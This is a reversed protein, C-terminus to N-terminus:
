KRLGELMIQCFHMNDELLIFFILSIFRFTLGAIPGFTDMALVYVASSLMGMTAVSTGYLGGGKIAAEGLHYAMLISVCIALIPLCTSQMGVAVGSIVATGHGKAAAAAIGKVPSYTYDTFYQTVQVFVSSNCM